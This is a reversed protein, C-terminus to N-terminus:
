FIIEHSMRDRVQKDTMLLSAYQEPGTYSLPDKLDLYIKFWVYQWM